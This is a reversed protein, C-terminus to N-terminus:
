SVDESPTGSGIGLVASEADGLFEEVDQTSEYLMSVDGSTYRIRYDRATLRVYETGPKAGSLEDIGDPLRGREERFADIQRALTFLYFRLSDETREVSIEPAPGPAIWTPSFFLLYFFFTASVLLAVQVFFSTDSRGRRATARAEKRRKQDDLVEALVKAHESPSDGEPADPRQPPTM